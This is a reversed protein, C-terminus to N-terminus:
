DHIAMLETLCDWFSTALNNTEPSLGEHMVHTFGGVTTARVSVLQLCLRYWNLREYYDPTTFIRKKEYDAYAQAYVQQLEKVTLTRFTIILNGGMIPTEDKFNVEGLVTQLFSLKKEYPPEPVSPMNLPYNCHDCHTKQTVAGTEDLSKEIRDLGANVTKGLQQVEAETSPRTYGPAPPANVGPVKQDLLVEEDSPTLMTRAMSQAEAVGPPLSAMRADEEAARMEAEETQMANELARRIRAQHEPTRKSIDVPQPIQLPAQRPDVNPLPPRDLALEQQVEQLVGYANTPLPMGPEYGNELLILQEMETMHEFSRGAANKPTGMMQGVPLPLVQEGTQPMPRRSPPMPTTVRQLLESPPPAINTRKKLSPVNPKPADAM